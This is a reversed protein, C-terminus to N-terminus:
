VAKGSGLAEVIMRKHWHDPTGILVADLDKRDLVRRYDKTTDLKEGFLEKARTLRSSYVDAAAVLEVGPAVSFSYADQQARAGIGIVGV